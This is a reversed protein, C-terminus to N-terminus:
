QLTSVSKQTDNVHVEPELPHLMMYFHAMKHEKTEDSVKQM